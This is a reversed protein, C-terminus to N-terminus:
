LDFNEPNEQYKKWVRRCFRYVNDELSDSNNSLELEKTKRKPYWNLAATRLSHNEKIALYYQIFETKLPMFKDEKLRAHNQSLEREERLEEATDIIELAKDIVEQFYQRRRQEIEEDTENLIEKYIQLGSMDYLTSLYSLGLIAYYQGWSFQDKKNGIVFLGEKKGRRMLRRISEFEIKQEPMKDFFEISEQHQLRMLVEDINKQLNIIDSTSKEELSKNALRILENVEDTLYEVEKGELIGSSELSKTLKM